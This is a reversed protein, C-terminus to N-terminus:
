YSLGSKDVAQWYSAYKSIVSFQYVLIDCPVMKTFKSTLMYKQTDPLGNKHDHCKKHKYTSQTLLYSNTVTCHVYYCKHFFVQKQMHKNRMDVANMEQLPEVVIPHDIIIVFVPHKHFLYSPSYVRIYKIIKVYSTRPIKQTLLLSRSLHLLSYFRLFIRPRSYQLKPITIGKM